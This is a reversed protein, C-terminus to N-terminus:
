LLGQLYLMTGSFLQDLDSESAKADIKANPIETAVLYLAHSLAMTAKAGNTETVYVSTRKGDTPRGKVVVNWARLEGNVKTHALATTTFNGKEGALTFTAIAFIKGETPQVFKFLDDETWPTDRKPLDPGASFRPSVMYFLRKTPMEQASAPTLMAVAAFVGFIASKM